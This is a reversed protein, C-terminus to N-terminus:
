VRLVGRLDLIELGTLSFIQPPLCRLRTRTLSLVKLSPALPTLDPLRLPSTLAVGAATAAPPVGDQLQFQLALVELSRLMPLISLDGTPHNLLGM